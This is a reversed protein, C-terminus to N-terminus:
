ERGARERGGAELKGGMGELHTRVRERELASVPLGDIRELLKGSEVLGAAIANEAFEWDRERGAVCKALILDPVEICLAYVEGVEGARKPVGVRVEWGEPAKATEPGVGHAYYGYTQHFPSGDGLSGDIEEARDPNRRPYVDAEISRLLSAPPDAVSGLIAQSGIVVIKREESITAAAAILHDFETKNM